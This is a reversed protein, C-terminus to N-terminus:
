RSYRYIKCGNKELKRLEGKVNEPLPSLGNDELDLKQLNCHLSLSKLLFSLENDELDFRQLNKFSAISETFSSSENTHLYLEQLNKLSSLSKSLSALQNYHLHLEQFNKLSSFSAPLSSLANGSLGLVRLEKLSSISEPLSSFQNGSLWLDKLKHLKSLSEPFSSLANGSLQLVRLEKLSSISEPLSPLQNYNLHLKQLKHLKFLSEPFSSLANGSLHLVRLEKLSSISEPLSSLQNYDLYLEQLNQLSGISEPLFFLHNGTLWLKQLNKLSSISEPLSFLKNGLLWLERLNKLSSFSEPLSFLQNNWLFLQQLNHLSGISKPLSSLQNDSLDLVRLKQLSSISEPLSSLQNWSLGLEQLESFKLLFKLLFYHKIKKGVGQSLYNNLKSSSFFKWNKIDLKTLKGNKTQISRSNWSVRLRKLTKLSKNSKIIENIYKILITKKETKTISELILEITNRFLGTNEIIKTLIQKVVQEEKYIMEAIESTIFFDFMRDPKFQYTQEYKQLFGSNREEHTIADLLKKIENNPQDCDPKNCNPQDCIESADINQLNRDMNLMEISIKQHAKFFCNKIKIPNLNNLHNWTFRFNSKNYKKGIFWEFTGTAIKKLILYGSLEEGNEPPNRLIAKLVLPNRYNLEPYTGDTPAWKKLNFIDVKTKTNEEKSFEVVFKEVQKETFDNLRLIKLSDNRENSFSAEFTRISYDRGTVIVQHNHQLTEILKGIETTDETFEDFGDIFIIANKKRIYEELSSKFEDGIEIIESHSILHKLTQFAFNTFTEILDTTKIEKNWQAFEGFFILTDKLRSHFMEMLQYVYVSKGAGMAGIIAIPPEISEHDIIKQMTYSQQNNKDNVFKSDADEWKVRKCTRGTIFVEKHFNKLTELMSPFYRQYQKKFTDLRYESVKTNPSTSPLEDKNELYRQIQKFNELSYQIDVVTGTPNTFVWVYGNTAIGFKYRKKKSLSFVKILQKIGGADDFLGTNISKAELLVARKEHKALNATLKLLYDTIKRENNLENHIVKESEYTLGDVLDLLKEILYRRTTEEPLLRYCFDIASPVWGNEFVVKEGVPTLLKKFDAFIKTVRKDM